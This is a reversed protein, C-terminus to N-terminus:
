GGGIWVVQGGKKGHRYRHLSLPLPTILHKWRICYLPSPCFLFTVCSLFLVSHYVPDSTLHPPTLLPRIHSRDTSRFTHRTLWGWINAAERRTRLSGKLLCCLMVSGIDCSESEERGVRSKGESEERGVRGESEERGVRGDDWAM